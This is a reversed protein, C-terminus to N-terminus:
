FGVSEIGQLTTLARRHSRLFSGITAGVLPSRDDLMGHRVLWEAAAAKFDNTGMRKLASAIGAQDRRGAAHWAVSMLLANTLFSGLPKGLAIARDVHGHRAADEAAFWRHLDRDLHEFSVDFTVPKIGMDYLTPVHPMAVVQAASAYHRKYLHLSTILTSYAGPRSSTWFAVAEQLMSWEFINIGSFGFWIDNSRVAVNMHLKGGRKIVSIWNNCPVDRSDVYDRGPDFISMVARRSNPDRRLLRVTEAIQDISIRKSQPWRRLRPGYGARWMLGDDSNAVAARPMYARIFAIDNRGGLVWLAEAVTAFPNGQRGPVVIFRERPREIRMVAQIVETVDNGRVRIRRGTELIDKLGGIFATTPSAYRGSQRGHDVGSM